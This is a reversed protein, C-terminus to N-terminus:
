SSRALYEETETRPEARLNERDTDEELYPLNEDHPRKVSKSQEVASLVTHIQDLSKSRKDTAMMKVIDDYFQIEGSTRTTSRHGHQRKAAGAELLQGFSFGERLRSFETEVEQDQLQSSSQQDESLEFFNRCASGGFQFVKVKGAIASRASSRVKKKPISNSGGCNAQSVTNQSGSFTRECQQLDSSALVEFIIQQRSLRGVPTMCHQTQSCEFNRNSPRSHLVFALQKERRAEILKKLKTKQERLWRERGSEVRHMPSQQSHHSSVEDLMRSEGCSAQIVVPENGDSGRPDRLFMM